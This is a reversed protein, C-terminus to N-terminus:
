LFPNLIICLPSFDNSFHKAEYLHCNPPRRFPSYHRRKTKMRSKLSWSSGITSTMATVAVSGTKAVVCVIAMSLLRFRVLSSSSCFFSLLASSLSAVVLSWGPAPISTLLPAPQHKWAIVAMRRLTQHAISVSVTTLEMAPWVPMIVPRANMFSRIQLSTQSWTSVKRVTHRVKMPRSQIPNPVTCSSRGTMFSVQLTSAFLCFIDLDMLNSLSFLVFCFFDYPCPLREDLWILLTWTIVFLSIYDIFFLCFCFGTEHSKVQLAITFESASLSSVFSHTKLWSPIHLDSTSSPTSVNLSSNKGSMGAAGHNQIELTWEGQPNEGWTHTTM